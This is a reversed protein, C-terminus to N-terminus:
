KCIVQKWQTQYLLELWTQESCKESTLCNYDTLSSSRRLLIQRMNTKVHCCKKCSYRHSERAGQVSSLTSYDNKLMKCLRQVIDIKIQGDWGVAKSRSGFVKLTMKM